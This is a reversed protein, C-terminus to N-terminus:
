IKELTVLRVSTVPVKSRDGDEPSPNSLDKFSIGAAGGGDAKDFGPRAGEFKGSGAFVCAGIAPCTGAEAVTKEVADVLLDAPDEFSSDLWPVEPAAVGEFGDVAGGDGEHIGFGVLQFVGLMFALLFAASKRDHSENAHDVEAVAPDFSELGAAGGFVIGAHSGFEECVDVPAVEQEAVTGEAGVFEDHADDVLASAMDEHSQVLRPMAFQVPTTAFFDAGNLPKDGPLFWCSLGSATPEAFVLPIGQRLADGQSVDLQPILIPSAFFCGQDYHGVEEVGPFIRSFLHGVEVHLPPLNFYFKAVDLGGQLHFFKINLGGPHGVFCQGHHHNGVIQQSAGHLFGGPSGPLSNVLHAHFSDATNEGCRM